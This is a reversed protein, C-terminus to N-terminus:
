CPGYFKARFELWKLSRFVKGNTVLVHDGIALKPRKGEGREQLRQDEM